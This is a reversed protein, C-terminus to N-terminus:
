TFDLSSAISHTLRQGLGSSPSALDLDALYELGLVETLLERGLESLLLLADTLLRGRVLLEWPM